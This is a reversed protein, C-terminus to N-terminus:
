PEPSPAPYSMRPDRGLATAEPVVECRVGISDFRVRDSPIVVSGTSPVRIPPAPNVPAVSRRLPGPPWPGPAVGPPADGPAPEM